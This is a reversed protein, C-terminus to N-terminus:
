SSLKKKLDDIEMKLMGMEQVLTKNKDSLKSILISFQMLILVVAILFILLFATPPYAIGLLSAVYGLASHWVAFVLFVVGFFIWLLAYQLLVREKRILEIVIIMFLISSIISILQIRSFIGPEM